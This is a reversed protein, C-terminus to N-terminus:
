VEMYTMNYVAQYRYRKTSTDTFNYDSNLAAKSVNSIAISQEMAAKVEENLKAAGYLTGAYSQIALTASLIHNKKSGATKEILVYSEPPKKPEEMYVPVNLLQRLYNLITIEIM